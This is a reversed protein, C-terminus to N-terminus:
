GRSSAQRQDTPQLQVPLLPIWNAPVTSALLYRPPADADGPTAASPPTGAAAAVLADRRIAQELPSEISREIAWALNAMEDRM